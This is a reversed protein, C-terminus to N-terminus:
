IGMLLLGSNWIVIGVYLLLFASSTWFALRPHHRHIDWLVIVALIVFGIKFALFHSEGAIDMLFPNGEM